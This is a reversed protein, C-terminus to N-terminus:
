EQEGPRLGASTPSPSAPTITSGVPRARWRAASSGPDRAGLVDRWCLAAAIMIVHLPVPLWNYFAMQVLAIALVAHAWLAHSSVRYTLVFVLCLWGVLLVLGPVGQSVLVTWLQGHTGVSADVGIGEPAPIPAGHGLVPSDFASRLAGEYLAFRGELNPREARDSVVQNLPSLVVALVAPVALAVVGAMLRVSGRQAGRAAVYLLGISLSLWLGRNISLVVPVVSPVMLAVILVRWWRKRVVLFSYVALPLMLAFNAGWENTYNFPAKPRAIDYGLLNSPSSLEPHVLSYIFPETALSSPLLVETLTTFSFGPLALGAFGGLVTAVWLFAVAQALKAAPLQRASLNFIFLFLVVASVYLSFRYGFALLQRVSDLQLASLLVWGLFLLLLGTGRPVHVSQQRLLRVAMPIALIPWIFAQLGLAWWLPYGYLLAYVPWAAPLRRPGARRRPLPSTDDRLLEVVATAM